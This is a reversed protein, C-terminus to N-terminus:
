NSSELYCVAASGDGIWGGWRWTNTTLNTRHHQEKDWVSVFCSLIDHRQLIKQLVWWYFVNVETVFKVVYIETQFTVRCPVLALDSWSCGLSVLSLIHLQLLFKIDADYQWWWFKFTNSCKNWLHECQHSLLKATAYHLKFQNQLRQSNRFGYFFYVKLEFCTVLLEWLLLLLCFPTYQSM